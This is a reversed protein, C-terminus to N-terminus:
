GPMTLGAIILVIGIVVTVPAVVPHHLYNRYFLQHTALAHFGVVALYVGFMVITLREIGSM